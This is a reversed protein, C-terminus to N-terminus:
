STAFLSLAGIRVRGKEGRAIMTSNGRQIPHLQKVPSGVRVVIAFHGPATNTNARLTIFREGHGDSSRSCPPFGERDISAADTTTVFYGPLNEKTFRGCSRQRYTCERQDRQDKHRHCRHHATSGRRSGVIGGDLSSPSISNASGYCEVMGDRLERAMGKRTM